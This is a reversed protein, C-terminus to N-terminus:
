EDAGLVIHTPRILKTTVTGRNISYYLSQDCSGKSKWVDHLYFILGAADRGDDRKFYISKVQFVLTNQTGDDGEFHNKGELYDVDFTKLKKLENDLLLDKSINKVRDSIAKLKAYFDTKTVLSTIDPIKNEVATLSSNTALGSIKTDYDM